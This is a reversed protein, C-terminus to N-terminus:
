GADDYIYDDRTPDLYDAWFRIEDSNRRGNWDFVPTVGDRDDFGDLNRDTGDDFVPPTPHSALFHIVEGNVKIPLDVHNKSSLRLIEQAQPDYRGVPLLNNPMDRWRFTQFTRVSSEDIPFKSLIVFSYQGEFMGFGFADDADDMMVGDGDLDLGSAVGTNSRAVFVHDYNLPDLGGQSVGVYHQLFGKLSRGAEDYDFENILVIDPNVWQLIEAVAAAQENGPKTLDRLLEGSEARHLSANFTAVRLDGSRRLSVRGEAHDTTAARAEGILGWAWLLGVAGFAAMWRGARACVGEPM